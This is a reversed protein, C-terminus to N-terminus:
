IEYKKAKFNLQNIKAFDRETLNGDMKEDKPPSLGEPSQWTGQGPL